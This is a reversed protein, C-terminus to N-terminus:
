FVKKIVGNFIQDIIFSLSAIMLTFIFSALISAVIDKSKKMLIIQASDM